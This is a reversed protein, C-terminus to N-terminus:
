RWKLGHEYFGTAFIGIYPGPPIVAFFAAAGMDHRLYKAALEPSGWVAQFNALFAAYSFTAFTMHLMVAIAILVSTRTRRPTSRYSGGGRSPQNLQLMLMAVGPIGM